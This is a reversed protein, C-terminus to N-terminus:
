LKEEWIRLSPRCWGNVFDLLELVRNEKEAKNAFVNRLDSLMRKAEQQSGGVNKFRVIDERLDLLSKNCNIGKEIALKM